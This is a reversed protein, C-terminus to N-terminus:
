IDLPQVTAVAGPDKEWVSPSEDVYVEIGNGDPDEVYLSKSVKHDASGVIKVNNKELWKKAEKLESISEGIKLAIHYLGVANEPPREARDGLAMLALDHHNTGDITFFKMMGQYDAVERLNLVERYFKASEELNRVRLVVHGIKKVRIM